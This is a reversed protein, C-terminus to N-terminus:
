DRGILPNMVLTSSMHLHPQTPRVYDDGDQTAHYIEVLLADLLEVEEVGRRCCMVDYQMIVDYQM